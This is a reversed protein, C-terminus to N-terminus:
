YYDRKQDIYLSVHHSHTGITTSVMDVILSSSLMSAIVWAIVVSMLPSRVLGLLSFLSGGAAAADSPSMATPFVDDALGEMEKM